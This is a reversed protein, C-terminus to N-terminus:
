DETAELWGSERAIRVADLRNRGGLKTVAAALYNRVTGPSLHLRAAIEALEAGEAAIRLVDTERRALPSPAATLATAALGADIVREGAAVRRVAAALEHSPADKLVFGGVRSRLAARLAQPRGRATLILVRCDPLEAALRRAAELGDTGPMLLDLVAVDPRHELAAPVVGDGDAVEAVVRLDPELELLASLAGRVMHMDEALLVRIM